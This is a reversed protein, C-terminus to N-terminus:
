AKLKPWSQNCGSQCTTTTRRVSQELGTCSACHDQHRRQGHRRRSRVRRPRYHRSEGEKTMLKSRCALGKPALAKNLVKQVDVDVSKEAPKVTMMQVLVSNGQDDVRRTVMRGTATHKIDHKHGREISGVKPPLLEQHTQTLHLAKPVNKTWKTEPKAGKRLMAFDNADLKGNKNMDIKKQKPSLATKIAEAAVDGLMEDVEKKANAIKDAFTPKKGTVPAGSKRQLDKIMDEDSGHGVLKNVGSAVKKGIKKVADL